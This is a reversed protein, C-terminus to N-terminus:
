IESKYGPKYFPTIEDADEIDEFYTSGTKRLAAKTEEVETNANFDSLPYVDGTRTHGEREKRKRSIVQEFPFPSTFILTCTRTVPRRVYSKINTPLIQICYCFVITKTM